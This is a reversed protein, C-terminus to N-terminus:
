KWPLSFLLSFPACHRKLGKRCLPAAPKIECLMPWLLFVALLWCPVLMNQGSISHSILCQLISLKYSKESSLHCSFSPVTLVGLGTMGISNHDGNFQSRINHLSIVGTERQQQEEYLICSASHFLVLSPWSVLKEKATLHWVTEELGWDNKGSTWSSALSCRPLVQRM